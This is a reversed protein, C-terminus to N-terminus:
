RDDGLRCPGLRLGFPASARLGCLSMKLCSGRRQRIRMLPRTMESSGVIALVSLGIRNLADIGRAM